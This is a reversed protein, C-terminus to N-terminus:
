IRTISPVKQSSPLVYASKIFYMSIKPFINWHAASPKWRKEMTLIDNVKGQYKQIASQLEEISSPNKVGMEMDQM